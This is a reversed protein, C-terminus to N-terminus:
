TNLGVDTVKTHGANLARPEDTRSLRVIWRRRRCFRPHLHKLGRLSRLHGLGADSIGTRQLLLDELQNLGELAALHNDKISLGNLSVSKLQPLDRLRSLAQIRNSEGSAPTDDFWVSIVHGLIRSWRTRSRPAALQCKAGPTSNTLSISTTQPGDGANKILAVADRQVRAGPRDVWGAGFVLVLVIMGRVSFRLFRQWPRSVPKSQESM